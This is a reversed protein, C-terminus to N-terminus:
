VDGSEILIVIDEIMKDEKIDDYESKLNNGFMLAVTQFLMAEIRGRFEKIIDYSTKGTERDILKILIKGQSYTLDRIDKEFTKKLDNEATKMLIEKSSEDDIKSLKLDYEKIKLGSLKAYPYVIKVDRVLKNYQKKEKHYKFVRDGKIRISPLTYYLIQKNNITIVRCLNEIKDQPFVNFSLISLILVLIKM